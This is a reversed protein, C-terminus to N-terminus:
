TRHGELMRFASWADAWGDGTVPFEVPTDASQFRSIRYAEKSASLVFRGTIHSTRDGFRDIRPAPPTVESGAEALQKSTMVTAQSAFDYTSTTELSEPEHVPPLQIGDPPSPLETLTSRDTLRPM